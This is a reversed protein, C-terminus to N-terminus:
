DVSLIPLTVLSSTTSGHSCCSPPRMHKRGRGHQPIVHPWELFSSTVEVVPSRPRYRLWPRRYPVVTHIAHLVERIVDIQKRHLYVRLVYTRGTFSICGDGLYAGILYAYARHQHQHLSEFGWKTGKLPIAEASQAVGAGDVLWYRVTSRAIFLERAIAATPTGARWLELARSVAERHKARVGIYRRRPGRDGVEAVTWGCGSRGIRCRGVRYQFFHLRRGSEFRRM